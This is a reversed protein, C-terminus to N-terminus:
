QYFRYDKKDLITEKWLTEPEMCLYIWSRMGTRRVWGIMKNYMKIRLDRPYRLKGGTDEFFEGEYFILNDEFRMEAMQKLGPTYRLTGLSIWATKERIPKYSFLERAVSEYDEEWTNYYVIPDFHFGIRFGREALNLAADIREDISAAGQEYKEAVRRTNISWSIVVNDNPQSRIVTDVGAVKTKLELVLNKMDKFFPILYSSYKTYKDFALSDTFEGTGIRTKKNVKGDFEKIYGYYDEINAPLVMGPANSYMQLYCYSCDVPCGFGVNLIWYGCRKAEKTCPCIKLFAHKNKILFVNERRSNYLEIPDKPEIGRIAEKVDRIHKVEAKPFNATFLHTWGLDKVEEEIFISKPALEFEWKQCEATAGSSRFPMIHIDQDESKSPYRLRTLSEKVKHFLGSRGSSALAEIDARLFVDEVRSGQARSIEYILRSLENKKNVGLKIPLAKTLKEEIEKILNINNIVAM